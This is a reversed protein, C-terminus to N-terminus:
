KKNGNEPSRRNRSEKKCPHPSWIQLCYEFHPHAVSKYLPMIINEMNNELVRKKM